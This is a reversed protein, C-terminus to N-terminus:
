DRRSFMAIIAGLALAGLIARGPHREVQRWGKKLAYQSRSWFSPQAFRMGAAAESIRSKFRSAFSPRYTSRASRVIKRVSHKMSRLERRIADLEDDVIARGNM